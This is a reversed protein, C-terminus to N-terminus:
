KGGSFNDGRDSPAPSYDPLSERYLLHLTYWLVISVFANGVPQHSLQHAEFGNWYIEQQGINMVNMLMVMSLMLSRKGCVWREACFFKWAAIFERSGVFTIFTLCVFSIIFDKSLSREWYVLTRFARQGLTEAIFHRSNVKVFIIESRVDLSNIGSSKRSLQMSNAAFM